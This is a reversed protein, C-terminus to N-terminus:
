GDGLDGVRATTVLAHGPKITGGDPVAYGGMQLGYTECIAARLLRHYTQALNEPAYPQSHQGL